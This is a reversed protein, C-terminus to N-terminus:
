ELLVWKNHNVKLQKHLVLFVEVVLKLKLKSDEAVSYVVKVQRQIPWEEQVVVLSAPVQTRNLLQHVELSDSQNRHKVLSVVLPEQHKYKSRVILHPFALHVKRPHLSVVPRLVQHLQYEVSYLLLKSSQLQLCILQVEQEELYVEVQYVVM